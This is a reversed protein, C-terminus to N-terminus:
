VPRTPAFTVSWTSGEGSSADSEPPTVSKLVCEPYTTPKGVKVFDADTPQRTVTFVGSGVIKQLRDIIPQDREPRYPRTLELDATTAPGGLMDPYSAGGEWVPSTESEVAGGSMSAWPDAIQVPGATVNALFQRAAAAKGQAM